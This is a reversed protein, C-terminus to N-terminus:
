LSNLHQVTYTYIVGQNKETRYEKHLLPHGTLQFSQQLKTPCMLLDLFKLTKRLRLSTTFVHVTHLPYLSISHYIEIYQKKTYVTWPIM